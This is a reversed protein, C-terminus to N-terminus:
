KHVFSLVEPIKMNIGLRHNLKDIFYTSLLPSDMEHNQHVFFYIKQLGLKVWQNLKELWDDMRAYDLPHNAGVYRIFAVPTTLRMHLLDRRGATDTIIHTINNEELLDYFRDINENDNYWDSNRIEIALPIDKPFISVFDVLRDYNKFGFNNHLQLFVMEMKPSFNRINSCFSEIYRQVDNLRKIHSIFQPVKPFFRFDDPTKDRWQSIQEPDYNGYFTANLEISNFQKSYYELEDKVGRPFFNQLDQRNWKGCGVYVVPKNSNTYKQLVKKTGPNDIPLSYNIEGPNEVKGFKM